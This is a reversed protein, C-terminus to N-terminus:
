LLSLLFLPFHLLSSHSASVPSTNRHWDRSRQKIVTFLYLQCMLVQEAVAFMKWNAPCLFRVDFQYFSSLMKHGIEEIGREGRPWHKVWLPTLGRCKQTVGHLREADTWSALGWSHRTSNWQTRLTALPVLSGPCTDPHKSSLVM